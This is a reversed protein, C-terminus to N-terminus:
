VKTVSLKIAVYKKTGPVGKPFKKLFKEDGMRERVAKQNIARNLLDFASNKKVYDYFAKDDEISFKDEEVRIAKYEKGVAGGDGKPINRIIHDNWFSEVAKLKEVEKELNLRAQRAAHYKDVCLGLSKPPKPMKVEGTNKAM